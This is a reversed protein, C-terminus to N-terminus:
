FTCQLSHMIVATSLKHVTAVYVIYFINGFHREKTAKCAKNTQSKNLPYVFISDAYGRLLVFGTIGLQQCFGTM